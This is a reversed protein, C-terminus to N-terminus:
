NLCKLSCVNVREDELICYHNYDNVNWHVLTWEDELICYHNFGNVNWHVFIWEKMGLFSKRNFDKLM